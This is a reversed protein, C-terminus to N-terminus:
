PSTKNVVGAILNRPSDLLHYIRLCKEGRRCAGSSSSRASCPRRSYGNMWNSRHPIGWGYLQTSYRGAARSHRGSAAGIGLAAGNGMVKAGAMTLAECQTPNVKEPMISNGPENEPLTIAGPGSRPGSALWRIDNAIKMLVVALTRLAGHFAVLSEHEALAAFKKDASSFPLRFTRALEASVGADFEPHTNLGTGVATGGIALPYLWVQQHWCHRKSQDGNANAIRETSAVFPHQVGAGGGCAHRLSFIM